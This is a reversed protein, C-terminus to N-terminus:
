KMQAPLWLAIGPFEYLLYIGLLMAGVYPVAGIAIQRFTVSDGGISKLVFLIM